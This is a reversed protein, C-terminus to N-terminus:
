AQLNPYKLLGLHIIIIIIIIIGGLFCFIYPIFWVGNTYLMEQMRFYELYHLWKVVHQEECVEKDNNTNEAKNEEDEM